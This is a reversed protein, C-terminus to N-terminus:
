GQSVDIDQEPLERYQETRERTQEKVVGLAKELGATEKECNVGAGCVNVIKTNGQPDIELTIKTGM